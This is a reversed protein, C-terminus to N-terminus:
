LTVANPLNLSVAKSPQSISPMAAEHISQNLVTKFAGHPFTSVTLGLLGLGIRPGVHHFSHVLEREPEVERVDSRWIHVITCTHM